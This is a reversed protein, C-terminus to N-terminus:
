DRFNNFQLPMEISDEGKLMAIISQL